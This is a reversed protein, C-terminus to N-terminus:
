LALHWPACSQVINPSAPVHQRQERTLWTSTMRTFTSGSPAVGVFWLDSHAMRHLAQVVVAM